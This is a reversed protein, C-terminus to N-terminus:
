GSIFCANVFQRHTGQLHYVVNKKRCYVTLMLSLLNRWLMLSESDSLMRCLSWGYFTHEEIEHKVVRHPSYWHLSACSWPPRACVPLRCRAGCVRVCARVSARVCVCVSSCSRKSIGSASHSQRESIAPHFVSFEEEHFTCGSIRPNLALM